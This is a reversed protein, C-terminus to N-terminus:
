IHASRLDTHRTGAAMDRQPHVRNNIWKAVEVTLLLGLAIGVVMLWETLNLPVVGLAAGLGPILFPLVAMLIGAAVALVLPKNEALPRMQLLPRTLSRYAFIYVMSNIAFSAFVISRGEIVNSHVAYMHNFLYLVAAASCVSIVGILSMGLGDLIPATRPIPKERMIGEEGPEFGLVIDSPGDCILHIWLIQAVVLPAPWGLLM